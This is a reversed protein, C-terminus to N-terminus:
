SSLHVQIVMQFALSLHQARQNKLIRGQITTTPSTLALRCSGKKAGVGYGGYLSSGKVWLMHIAVWGVLGFEM